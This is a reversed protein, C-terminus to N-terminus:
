SIMAASIRPPKTTIHGPVQSELSSFRNHFGQQQSGVEEMWPGADWIAKM